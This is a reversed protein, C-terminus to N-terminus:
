EPQHSGTLALQSLSALIGTEKSRPTDFRSEWSFGLPELIWQPDTSTDLCTQLSDPTFFVEPQPFLQCPIGLNATEANGQIRSAFEGPFDEGQPSATPSATPMATTQFESNDWSQFRLSAGFQM